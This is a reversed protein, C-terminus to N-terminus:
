SKWANVAEVRSASNFAIVYGSHEDLYYIWEKDTPNDAQGLVREVDEKTNGRKIREVNKILVKARRLEVSDAPKQLRLFVAMLIM